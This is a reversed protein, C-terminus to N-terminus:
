RVKGEREREWERERDTQNDDAGYDRPISHIPPVGWESVFPRRKATKVFVRIGYKRSPFSRYLQECLRTYTLMAVTAYFSARRRHEHSKSVLMIMFIQQQYLTMYHPLPLNVSSLLHDVSHRASDLHVNTQLAQGVTRHWRDTVRVVITRSVLRTLEVGVVSWLDGVRAVDDRVLVPGPPARREAGDDSAAEVCGRSRFVRQVIIWM